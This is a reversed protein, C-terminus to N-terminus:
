NSHMFESKAMALHHQQHVFRERAIRHVSAASISYKNRIAQHGDVIRRKATRRNQCELWSIPRNIEHAHAPVMRQIAKVTRRTGTLAM